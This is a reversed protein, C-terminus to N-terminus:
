IVAEAEVIRAVGSAVSRASELDLVVPIKLGQVTQRELRLSDVQGEVVARLLRVEASATLLTSVPSLYADYGGVEM